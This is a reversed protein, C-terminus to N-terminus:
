YIFRDRYTHGNSGKGVSELTVDRRTWRGDVYIEVWAHYQSGDLYGTVVKTPIGLSRLMAAVLAAYDFCIGRRERLTADPNPIYGTSKALRKAKDRDYAVGHAVYSCVIDVAESTTKAKRCLRRARSVCRSRVGYSCYRNPVLFPALESALRVNARRSCLEAYQNGDVNEMIRVVYYGSGMNVPYFAESGDNPLDHNYTVDGKKVQLKLRSSSRAAAGIWGLYAHYTDIYARGNPKTMMPMLVKSPMSWESM